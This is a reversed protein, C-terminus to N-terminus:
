PTRRRLKDLVGRYFYSLRGSSTLSVSKGPRSLVDDYLALLEPLMLRGYIFIKM